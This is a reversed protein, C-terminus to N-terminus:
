SVNCKQCPSRGGVQELRIRYITRKLSSCDLSRHYLVGYDTVYVAEYSNIQNRQICSGCPYYKGGKANRQNTIQSQSISWVSLDLYSCATTKHYAGGFPTVYVWQNNQIEGTQCGTWRRAVAFQVVEVTDKGFMNIPLCVQYSATIRVFSTDSESTSLTIGTRGNKIYELNCGQTDLAEFFTSKIRMNEVISAQGDTAVESAAYSLAQNVQMEVQQVRFLGLFLVLFLVFVPVIFSAEVTVSGKHRICPLTKTITLTHNKKRM